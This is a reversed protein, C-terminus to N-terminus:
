KEKINTQWYTYLEDISKGDGQSNTIYVDDVYGLFTQEEVILWKIFERFHDAIEKAPVDSGDGLTQHRCIIESIKEEM